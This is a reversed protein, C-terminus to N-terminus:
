PCSSHVGCAQRYALRTGTPNQHIQIPGNVAVNSARAAVGQCVVSRKEHGVCSEPASRRADGGRRRCCRAAAEARWSARCCWWRSCRGPRRTWAPRPPPGRRSPPRPRRGRRPRCLPPPPFGRPRRGGRASGSRWAGSGCARCGALPASRGRTQPRRRTRAHTRAPSSTHAHAAQKNRTRRPPWRITHRVRVYGIRFPARWQQRQEAESEPRTVYMM